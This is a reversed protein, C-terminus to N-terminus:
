RPLRSADGTDSTAAPVESRVASTSGTAAAMRGVNVGALGTIGGELSGRRETPPSAAVAAAVRFRKTLM